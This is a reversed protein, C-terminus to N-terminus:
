SQENNDLLHKETAKQTPYSCTKSLFDYKKVVLGETFLSSDRVLQFQENIM